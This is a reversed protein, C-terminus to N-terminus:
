DRNLIAPDHLQRYRRPPMQKEDLFRRNFNALNNFGCEHAIETISLDTEELLRCAERVRRANRYDVFTRHMFKRFFRSFAGPSLGAVRAADAISSEDRYHKEVHSIVRDLRSSLQYSRRHHYRASALSQPTQLSLMDLIQVLKLWRPVGHVGLLERMAPEVSAACAKPFRLGRSAAALMRGISLFEPLALVDPPLLDPRFQIVVAAQRKRGRGDSSIWTHPLNGGLLVLDGPGYAESHDGVLRTGSGQAILTLEVEPHFHWNWLFRPERREFAVLSASDLRKRPPELVPKM